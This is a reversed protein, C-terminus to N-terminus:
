KPRRQWWQQTKQNPRQRIRGVWRTMEVPAFRLPSVVANAKGNCKDQGNCKGKGNGNSKNKGAGNTM